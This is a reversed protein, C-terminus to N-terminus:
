NRKRLVFDVRGKDDDALLRSKAIYEEAEDIAAQLKFPGRYKVAAWSLSLIPPCVPAHM